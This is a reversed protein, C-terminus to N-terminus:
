FLRVDQKAGKGEAGLALHPKTCPGPSKDNELLVDGELPEHSAQSSAGQEMM